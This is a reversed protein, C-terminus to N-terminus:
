LTIARPAARAMAGARKPSWACAAAWTLPESEIMKPPTVGVPPLPSRSLAVLKLKPEANQPEPAPSKEATGPPNLVGRVFPTRVILLRPAKLKVEPPATLKVDIGLRVMPNFVNVDAMTADDPDIAAPVSLRDM